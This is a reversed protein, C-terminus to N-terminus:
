RFLAARLRFDRSERGKWEVAILEGTLLLVERDFTYEGIISRNVGLLKFTKGQYHGGIIGFRVLVDLRQVGREESIPTRKGDRRRATWLRSLWNRRRANRLHGAWLCCLAHM